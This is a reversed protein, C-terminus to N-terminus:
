SQVVRRSLIREEALRDAALYTPIRERRSIDFVQTLTHYIEKVKAYARDRDYGNWEEAINIVGGANIVYDPAYVIGMQHIREGHRAEKLQNNASGAIVKAQLRGITDDNITAGLACPAYIDCRVGYIDDPDVAKAGFQEVAEQVAEKNIDTVILQAGEEHLHRCLHFAVNGVGQVAVTKGALSDSGFAEKAAAKMGHYVGFATAPSPNGSSGQGSKGTVYKTEKHITDMDEVTTGVDEATIYRGSLSQVYRGFALLMGENKDKKPDGIIVSKGGGFNLSSVAHKYTMGKALRMADEIAAEESAYQWMRAGGLAPGLTTDHIAIIAKLGTRKDQCFVLQEYDDHTMTQFLEM